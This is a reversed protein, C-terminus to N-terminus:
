IAAPTAIRIQIFGYLYTSIKLVGAQVMQSITPRSEIDFSAHKM